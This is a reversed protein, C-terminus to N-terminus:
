SAKRRCVLSHSTYTTTEIHCDGQKGEGSALPRVYQVRIHENDEAQLVVRVTQEEASDLDTYALRLKGFARRIATLRDRTTKITLYGTDGQYYDSTFGLAEIRCALAYCDRMAAAQRALGELGSQLRNAVVRDISIDDIIV